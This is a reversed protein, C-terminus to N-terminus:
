PRSPRKAKEDQIVQLVSNIEGGILIAAGSFYFWLMLVMVGGLTGYTANYRGFYVVYYKFGFSVILWGSLAFLAGPSVIRWRQKMNPATYYLLDLALMVFGIIGVWRVIHWATEFSDGYGYAQAIREGWSEGFFLLALALISFLALACILVIALLREQWWARRTPVDYATNLASIIAEMGSSAVWISLLIGFSLLGSSPQTTIQVFTTQLMAFADPPLVNQLYNFLDEFFHPLPVYALLATLFILLPFLSFLWYYALQAARGFVEDEFIRNYVAIAVFRWRQLTPAEDPLKDPSLTHALPPTPVGSKEKHRRLQRRIAADSRKRKSYKRM